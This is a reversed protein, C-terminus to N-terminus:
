IQLFITLFSFEIISDKLKVSDSYDVLDSFRAFESAYEKLAFRLVGEIDSAIYKYIWGRSVGSHSSVLSITTHDIGFDDVLKFVTDIVIKFKEDKSDM